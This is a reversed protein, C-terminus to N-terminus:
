AKTRCIFISPPAEISSTEEFGVGELDLESPLVKGPLVGIVSLGLGVVEDFKGSFVIPRIFGYLRNGNFLLETRVM